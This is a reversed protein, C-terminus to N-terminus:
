GFDKEEDYWIIYTFIKINEVEVSTNILFKRSKDRNSAFVIYYAEKLNRSKAYYSVQKKGEKFRFGDIFVKYEIIYEKGFVNIIM